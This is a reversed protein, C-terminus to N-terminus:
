VNAGGEEVVALLLTQDDQASIGEAFKEVDAKIAALITDPNNPIQKELQILLRDEGYQRNQRDFRETIGDTYLLLCDGPELCVSTVPVNEYNEIGMPFVGECPQEVAKGTSSRYLMPLHHGARTILLERSGPDYVAYIATVFSTDYVARLHQNLYQIVRDPEAPITPYSRFLTCTMAMQVAAPAGHGEADAILIGWRGDPLEVLDYYDGGAYLSTEYHIALKFGPIRPLAEPLLRRQIDSVIELERALMDRQKQVERGLRQITLHTNVRAIVEEPQFPKTVYDVAGLKLGRVKDATDDLASLFIIPIDSTEPDEKLIRCVEFGDIGPMMIDLLILDPRAKRIISLAAEGSKAILLKCGIGELTKFLVQLNTPNDDVLLIADQISQDDTM